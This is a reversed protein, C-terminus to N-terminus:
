VTSQKYSIWGIPQWVLLIMMMMQSYRNLHLKGNCQRVRDVAQVDVTLERAPSLEQKGAVHEYHEREEGVEIDVGVDDPFTALPVDALAVAV